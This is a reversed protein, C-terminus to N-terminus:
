RALKALLVDDDRNIARIRSEREQVLRAYRQIKDSTSPAARVEFMPGGDENRERMFGVCHGIHTCRSWIHGDGTLREKIVRGDKDFRRFDYYTAAESDASPLHMREVSELEAKLTDMQLREAKTLQDHEKADLPALQARIKEAAAQAKVRPDLRRDIGGQMVVSKHPNTGLYVIKADVVFDLPNASVTFPSVAVEAGEAEDVAPPKPALDDTPPEDRSLVRQPM